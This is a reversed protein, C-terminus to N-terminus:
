PFSEELVFGAGNAAAMLKAARKNDFFNFEYKRARKHTL